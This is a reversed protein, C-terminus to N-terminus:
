WITFDPRVGQFDNVTFSRSRRRLTPRSPNRGKVLNLYLDSRLFRPYSDQEMLRYVTNQAADFTTIVPQEINQSTVEKTQFDLNVEKPADKQIFTEYITKAKPLLEHATKSKKYDECAIWFEINEESFETKLFKMFADLGAKESLLKDFSEGWKLAEEPSVSAAKTLNGPKGPHDGEHFESKQLLLSLRNRKQKAGSKGSKHPEEKIAPKMIKYYAKDKSASINLQPFLLLPNEM